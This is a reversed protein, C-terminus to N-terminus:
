MEGVNYEDACAPFVRRFSDKKGSCLVRATHQVARLIRFQLAPTVAYVAECTTPQRAPSNMAAGARVSVSVGAAAVSGRLAPTLILPVHQLADQLNSSSTKSDYSSSLCGVDTM